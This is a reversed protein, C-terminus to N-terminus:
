MAPIVSLKAVYLNLSIKTGEGHGNLLFHNSFNIKLSFSPINITLTSYDNHLLLTQIIKYYTFTKGRIQIKVIAPPSKKQILCTPM